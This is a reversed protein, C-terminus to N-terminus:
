YSFPHFARRKARSGVLVLAVIGFAAATGPADVTLNEYHYYIDTDARYQFDYQWGVIASSGPNTEIDFILTWINDGNYDGGFSFYEIYDARLKTRCLGEENARCNPRLVVSSNLGDSYGDGDFYNSGQDGFLSVRFTAAAEDALASPDYEVSGRLRSSLTGEAELYDPDGKPPSAYIGFEFQGASLVTDISYKEIVVLRDVIVTAASAPTACAILSCALVSRKLM